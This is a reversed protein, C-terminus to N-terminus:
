KSLLHSTSIFNPIALNQRTTFSKLPQPKLTPNSSISTEIDVTLAKGDLEREKTSRRGRM